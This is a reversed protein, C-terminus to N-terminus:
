RGRTVCSCLLAPNCPGLRVGLNRARACCDRTKSREPVLSHVAGHQLHYPAHEACLQQCGLLAMTVVVNLKETPATSSDM